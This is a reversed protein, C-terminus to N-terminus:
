WPHGLFSHQHHKQIAETFIVYFDRIPIPMTTLFRLVLPRCGPQPLPRTGYVSLSLNLCYVSILNVVVDLWTQSM